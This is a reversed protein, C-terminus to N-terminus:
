AMRSFRQAAFPAACFTSLAAQSWEGFDFQMQTRTPLHRFQGYHIGRVCVVVIGTLIPSKMMSSITSEHLGGM